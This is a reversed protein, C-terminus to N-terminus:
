KPSMNPSLCARRRSRSVLIRPRRPLRSALGRVLWWPSIHRLVTNPRLLHCPRNYLEIQILLRSVRTDSYSAGLLCLRVRTHIRSTCQIYYTVVPSPM